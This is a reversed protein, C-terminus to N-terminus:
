KVVLRLAHPQFTVGRHRHMRTSRLGKRSWSQDADPGVSALGRRKLRPTMSQMRQDSRASRIRGKPYDFWSRTHEMHVVAYARDISNRFLAGFRQGSTHGPPPGQRFISSLSYSVYYIVNEWASGIIRPQPICVPEDRRHKSGFVGLQCGSRLLRCIRGSGKYGNGFM